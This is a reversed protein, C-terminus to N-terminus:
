EYQYEETVPLVTEIGNDVSSESGKKESSNKEWVEKIQAVKQHYFSFYQSIAHKTLVSARKENITIATDKSSNTTIIYDRIIARTQNSAYPVEIILNLKKDLLTTLENKMVSKIDNCLEKDYSLPELYENIWVVISADNLLNSYSMLKKGMLTNEAMGSSPVIIHFLVEIGCGKLAQIAERDLLVDILNLTQIKDADIIIDHITDDKEFTNIINDLMETTYQEEDEQLPIEIKPIHKYEGLRKTLRDTDIGYAGNIADIMNVSITTNGSGGSASMVIHIINKSM